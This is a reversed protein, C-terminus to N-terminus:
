WTKLQFQLFLQTIPFNTPESWTQCCNWPHPLLSPHSILKRSNSRTTLKECRPCVEVISLRSPRGRVNWKQLFFIHWNKLPHYKLLICKEFDRYISYTGSIVCCSAAQAPTPSTLQSKSKNCYQLSMYYILEWSRSPFTALYQVCIPLFGIEQGATAQAIWFPEIVLLKALFTDTSGPQELCIHVVLPPNPKALRPWHCSYIGVLIIRCNGGLHLISILVVLQM